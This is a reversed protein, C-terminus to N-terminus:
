SRGIRQHLFDLQAQIAESFGTSPSYLILWELAEFLSLERDVHQFLIWLERAELESLVPVAGVASHLEQHVAIPIEYVFCRRLKLAYSKSWEKRYFLIHHRDHGSPVRRARKKRRKSM